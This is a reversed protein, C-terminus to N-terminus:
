PWYIWRLRLLLLIKERKRSLATNKWRLSVRLKPPRMDHAVCLRCGTKITCRRGGDGTKRTLM